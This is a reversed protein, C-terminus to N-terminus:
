FLVMVLKSLSRVIQFFVKVLVNVILIVLSMNFTFCLFGFLSSNTALSSTMLVRLPLILDVPARVFSTTGLKYSLFTSNVERIAVNGLSSPTVITLIRVAFPM